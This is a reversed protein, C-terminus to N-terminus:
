APGDLPFTARVGFGGGDRAAADLTGGLGTVRERMGRLGVGPTPSEAPSARGDDTVSVTLRAPAYEVHIRATAPGAHRAV